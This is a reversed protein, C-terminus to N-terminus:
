PVDTPIETNTEAGWASVTTNVFDVSKLTLAFTFTYANGATFNVAPLEVTLRNDVTLEPQVTTVSYKLEVYIDGAARNQPVLMLYSDDGCLNYATADLVYGASNDFLHDGSEAPKESFCDSAPIWGGAVGSRGPFTYTGKRSVKGSKYYVKLSKIKVTADAYSQALKASFGIKSLIHAFNFKVAGGAGTRSYATDAVLDVQSAASEQTTFVIGPNSGGGATYTAAAGTVKSFAFFSVYGWTSESPRPWYRTPAYEWQNTKWEVLTDNMFTPAGTVSSVLTTPAASNHYAFVKFGTNKLSNLDLVAVKPAAAGSGQPIRALFTGFGIANAEEPVPQLNDNNACSWLALAAVATALFYHKKM